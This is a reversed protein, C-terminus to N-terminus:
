IFATLRISIIIDLGALAKSLGLEIVSMLRLTQLTLLSFHSTNRLQSALLLFFLNARPCFYESWSRQGYGYSTKSGTSESSPQMRMTSEKKMLDLIWEWRQVQGPDQVWYGTPWGWPHLNQNDAAPSLPCQGDSDRHPVALVFDSPLVRPVATRLHHRDARPLELLMQSLELFACNSQSWGGPSDATRKWTNYSLFIFSSFISSECAFSLSYIYVTIDRRPHWRCRHVPM